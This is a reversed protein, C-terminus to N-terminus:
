RNADLYSQLILTAAIPDIIKSRKKRKMQGEKLISHAHASSLREDWYVIEINMKQHLQEGFEKVLQAMEGEQGSLLLPLGIVITKIQPDYCSLREQLKNVTDEIKKEAMLTCLPLAMMGMEDTIAIGIRAKGYDLAVIRM